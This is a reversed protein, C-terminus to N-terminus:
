EIALIVWMSHSFSGQDLSSRSNFSAQNTAGNTRSLTFLICGNIGNMRTSDHSLKHNQHNITHHDGSSNIPSRAWFMYMTVLLKGHQLSSSDIPLSCKTRACILPSCCGETLAGVLILLSHRSEPRSLINLCRRVMAKSYVNINSYNVRLM